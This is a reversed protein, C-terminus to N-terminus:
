KHGRALALASQAVKIDADRLGHSASVQSM